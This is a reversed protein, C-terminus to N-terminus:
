PVWSPVRHRQGVGAAGGTRPEGEVRLTHFTIESPQSPLQQELIKAPYKSSNRFSKFQSKTYRQTHVRQQLLTWEQGNATGPAARREWVSGQISSLDITEEERWRGSLMQVPSKRDCPAPITRHCNACGGAKLSPNLKEAKSVIKGRVKLLTM